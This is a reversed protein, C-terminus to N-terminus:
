EGAFHDPTLGLATADKAEPDFSPVGVPGHQGRSARTMENWFHLM